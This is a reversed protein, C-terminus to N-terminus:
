LILEKSAEELIGLYKTYFDVNNDTNPLRSKINTEALYIAELLHDKIMLSLERAKPNTISERYIDLVKNWSEYYKESKMSLHWNAPSKIDNYNSFCHNREAMLYEKLYEGKAAKFVEELKSVSEELDFKKYVEIMKELSSLLNLFRDDNPDSVDYRDIIQKELNAAILILPKEEETGLEKGEISNLYSIFKKHDSINFRIERLYIDRAEKDISNLPIDSSDVIELSFGLINLVDAHKNILEELSKEEIEKEDINRIDRLHIDLLNFDKNSEALSKLFGKVDPGTFGEAKNFVNDM